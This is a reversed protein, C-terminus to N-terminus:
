TGIQKERAGESGLDSWDRGQHCSDSQSAIASGSGLQCIGGGRSRGESVCNSWHQSEDRETRVEVMPANAWRKRGDGLDMGSHDGRRVVNGLSNVLTICM